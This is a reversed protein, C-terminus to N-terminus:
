TNEVRPRRDPVLRQFVMAFEDPRSGLISSSRSRACSRRGGEALSERRLRDLDTVKLETSRMESTVVVVIPGIRSCGGAEDSCPVRGYERLLLAATADGLGIDCNCIECPGRKGDCLGM